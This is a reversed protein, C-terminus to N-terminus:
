SSVRSLLEGITVPEAGTARAQDVITRLKDRGVDNLGGAHVSLCFLGDREEAHAMARLCADVDTSRNLRYCFVERHSGFSVPEHLRADRGVLLHHKLFRGMGFVWALRPQFERPRPGYERAIDLGAHEVARVGSGSLRGHPPVFVRVDTDFTEELHDRGLVAKQRLDTGSVFEPKGNPTDHHYGHLAIEVQSRSLRQSLFRVLRSNGGFPEPGSCGSTDYVVDADSTVFPVCALTVPVWNWIDDYVTTLTEPETVACADDDRIAFRM